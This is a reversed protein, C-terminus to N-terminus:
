SLNFTGSSGSTMPVLKEASNAFFAGKVDSSDVAELEQQACGSALRADPVM